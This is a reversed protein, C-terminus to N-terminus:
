GVRKVQFRFVAASRDVNGAEDRARVKVTHRGAEFRRSIRRNCFRPLNRDVKCVFTAGVENSRFRFLARAKRRHTRVLKPPHKAFSTRPAKTDVTFAVVGSRGVRGSVDTGTVAFGHPGDALSVPISFPSACPQPFGGDVECSFAVPRSAQFQITPRRDRSLPKPPVTITVTPPLALADVAGYADVLGAGVDNPGFVGVPLASSTLASRIQAATAGPNAQRVLAAVAAAHPAAASTGCFRWVGAELRAFFTTAGCDSAVIDPKVITQAPIDAAASAGTVPGFYHTVPGRSSYREPEAGNYYPVAGVTIAGPSGAHGFVTPGVTDGASSEPYEIKSVGGGNQMLVFKLRPLGASDVGPNCTSFCDNIALKVEASAGTDNEWQFVEVPRQNAINDANSGVVFSEGKSNEVLVPKDESNLLFADLDTEVGNWPEAWQLDVTLTAGASVTIGFGPDVGPGPDFDMCHVAEVAVALAAPCGTDRFKPAEWSGIGHGKKDILNDNGAASFYSVGAAAAENVAVAVPGDQFFPENFYAVDDAIVRAGANALSGINAAFALEGTFATAFGLSVGPALDHVIQAMARGEDDGGTGPFDLVSVPVTSGCPSAPGPLDGSAVDGAAHTVAAAARDFSDSLIGVAVGSGDIGFSARANNANLQMDGESRVLGGCDAGRSIPTLLETVASVRAVEGVDPLDGPKTAVTVTQYRRSIHVIEAGAARLAEAGAEAGRDFRVDVLVRDGARLLSGPGTSALSLQAAQEARPASRVAATALEALRPSLSPDATPTSMAMAM